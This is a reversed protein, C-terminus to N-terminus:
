DEVPYHVSPGGVCGLTDLRACAARFNGTTATHTMIVLHVRQGEQEDPM